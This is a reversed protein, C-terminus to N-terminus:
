IKRSKLELNIIERDTGSYNGKLWLIYSDPLDAYFLGKYKGFSIRSRSKFHLFKEELTANLNSLKIIHTFEKFDIRKQIEFTYTDFNFYGQRNTVFIQIDKIEKVTLNELNSVFVTFSNHHQTFIFHATQM